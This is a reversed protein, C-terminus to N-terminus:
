GEKNRKGKTDKTTRLTMTSELSTGSLSCLIPGSFEQTVVEELASRFVILGEIVIGMQQGSAFTQLRPGSIPPHLKFTIPTKPPLPNGTRVLSYMEPLEPKFRVEACILVILFNTPNLLSFGIEFRGDLLVQSKWDVLEV